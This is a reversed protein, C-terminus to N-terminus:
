LWWALLLGLLYGTVMVAAVLAALVILWHVRLPLRPDAGREPDVRQRRPRCLREPM